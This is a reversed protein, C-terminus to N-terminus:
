FVPILAVVACFGVVGQGLRKRLMETARVRTNRVTQSSLGMTVAIDDTNLGQLTLRIVRKCQNPLTDIAKHMERLVETDFIRSMVVDNLEDQSLELFIGKRHEDIMKYRRLHNLCANKTSIYLFAKITRLTEFDNRLAWLKIFVESVLDKAAEQDQVFEQAFYCLAGHYKVFIQEFARTKGRRFESILFAENSVIAV